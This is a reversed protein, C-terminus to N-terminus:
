EGDIVGGDIKFRARKKIERASQIIEERTVNEINKISEEMNTTIGFMSRGITWNLMGSLSDQISRLDRIMKKKVTDIDEDTFDGNKMKEIEIDIYEEVIDFKGLDIGAVIYIIGKFGDKFAYISYCLSKEERIVKFLKSSSWRGLIAVMINSATNLKDSYISDIKYSLALKGQNVELNEREDIIKEIEKTRSPADLINFTEKNIKDSFSKIKNKDMNGIAFTYKKGSIFLKKFIEYVKENTLKNLEEITGYESKGEKEGELSIEHIREVLYEDKDDKRSNLFDKLNDYETEYISEKFKSDIVLPNFIIEELFLLIEDILNNKSLSYQDQLFKIYYNVFIYGSKVDTYIDFSAGFMEQLHENIKKANEYKKTGNKLINCILNIATVNENLDIPITVKIINSKFQNREIYFYNEM